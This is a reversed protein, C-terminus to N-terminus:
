RQRRATPVEIGREASDHGATGPDAADHEATAEGPGLDLHRRLAAVARRQNAKVGTETAGTITAVERITLGSVFRLTLVDRQTPTLVGLLDAVWELSLRALADQEVDGVDAVKGLETADLHEVPRRAAARYEDVLRRRAMVFALTRVASWGGEIRDVRRALDLFVEAVLDDPERAGRVAVFARLAPGLARVAEAWAPESGLRLEDISPLPHDAAM